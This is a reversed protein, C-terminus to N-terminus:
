ASSAQPAGDVESSRLPLQEGISQVPLGLARARNILTRSTGASVVVRALLPLQHRRIELEAVLGSLLKADVATSTIRLDQIAELMQTFDPRERDALGIHHVPAVVYTGGALITPFFGATSELLRCAPLLALHRDLARPRAAQLLTAAVGILTRAAFRRQRFHGDPGSAFMLVATGPPLPAVPVPTRLLIRATTHLYAAQAGSLAMASAAESASFCGPLQLRAIGAELMALQLLAYGLGHELQVAVPRSPDFLDCLDAALTEVMQSTLFYDVPFETVPDIAIRHCGQVAHFHLAQVLLNM